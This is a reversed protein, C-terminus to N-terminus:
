LQPWPSPTLPSGCIADHHHHRCRCCCCCIETSFIFGQAQINFVSYRNAFKNRLLASAELCEQRRRVCVSVGVCICQSQGLINLGQDLNWATTEGVCCWTKCVWVNACCLVACSVVKWTDSNEGCVYKLYLIFLPAYIWILIHIYYSYIYILYLAGFIVAM